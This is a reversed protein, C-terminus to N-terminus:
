RLLEEPDALVKELIDAIKEIVAQDLGLHPHLMWLSRECVRQTVTCPQDVRFEGPRLNFLVFRFIPGEARGTPLGEAALANQITEIPIDLYAPHDFLMFWGFYGQRTARKGPSQFRIHTSARLRGELYRVARGYRDLLADLGKLQEQLIVPHFATARFNYCLLGPPPGHRAQGLGDESGYGIQKIRFIREALESDNTICIGGEGSSLTKCMQFSFSGVDGLTGVGKGNWVGGHMHACDEIVKLENHRAISMIRDMDAMSGYAHVPIIAKTRATIAWEIKGPDICLTDPEIDVFVPIAGVHRVALATSCWTLPSVIVEDGPGVGLAALASQLTVTGNITFVGHKAGHHAAFARAFASEAGDFATWQRSYYLDRLAQATSESLPPWFQRWDLSQALVPEGGALALRAM